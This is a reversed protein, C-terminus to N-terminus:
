SGTTGTPPQAWVGRHQRQAATEAQLLSEGNPCNVAQKGDRYAMGAAVLEYNLFREQEPQDPTPAPIFVEAMLRGERDIQNGYLTVRHGGPNGPTQGAQGILKQLYERSQRGLPQDLEPANIGCLQVKVQQKGQQVTLSDGGHVDLVEVSASWPAPSAGPASTLTDPAEVGQRRVQFPQWQLVLYAFGTAAFVTILVPLLLHKFKM